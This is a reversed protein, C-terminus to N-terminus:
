GADTRYYCFYTWRYPMLYPVLLLLKVQVADQQLRVSQLDGAVPRQRALEDAVLSMWSVLEALTKVVEECRESGAM